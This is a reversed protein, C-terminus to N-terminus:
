GIPEIIERPSGFKKSRDVLGASGSIKTLNESFARGVNPRAM